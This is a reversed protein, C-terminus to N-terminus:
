SYLVLFSVMLAVLGIAEALHHKCSGNLHGPCVNVGLCPAQVSLVAETLASHAALHHDDNRVGAHDWENIVRPGGKRGDSRMWLLSQDHANAVLLGFGPM